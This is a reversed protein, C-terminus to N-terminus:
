PDDQAGPAADVAERYTLFAASTFFLSGIFYTVSDWRAGVASVYGPVRVWARVARIGRRVARRDVMRPGPAGVLDLRRGRSRLHKRHRRSEWRRLLGDATLHDVFTSERLGGSSRAGRHQGPMTPAAILEQTARNRSRPVEGRAGPQRLTDSLRPHLDALDDLLLHSLERGIGNRMVVCLAALDERNAPFTYASVQWGRERLAASVDFVSYNTEHLAFASVPLEDGRTLLRFPALEAIRSSTYIAVGRCEHQVQRYGERGLRLLTHYRAVVQGGPRSFNLTLTPMEGGLYNVKFVLEDPLAEADRWLVWGVGPYVLGFKHGSTNISSGRCGSSRTPPLPTWRATRYGTAPVTTSEASRAFMTNVSLQPTADIGMATTSSRHLPM